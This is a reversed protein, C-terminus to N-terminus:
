PTKKVKFCKDSNDWYIRTKNETWAKLWVKQLYQQGHKDNYIGWAIWAAQDPSEDQIDSWMIAGDLTQRGLRDTFLDCLISFALDRVKPEPWYDWIRYKTRTDDTLCGILLPIADTGFRLVNHVEGATVPDADGEADAADQWRGKTYGVPKTKTLGLRPDCPAVKTQGFAPLYGLSLFLALSGISGISFKM